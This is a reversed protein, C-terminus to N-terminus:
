YLWATSRVKKEIMLVCTPHTNEMNRECPTVSNEKVEEPTGPVFLMLVESKFWYM